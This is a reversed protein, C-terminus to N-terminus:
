YMKYSYQCIFVKTEKATTKEKLLEIKLENVQSNLANVQTQLTNEQETMHDMQKHLVTHDKKLEGVKM